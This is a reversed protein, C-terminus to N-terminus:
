RGQSVAACESVLQRQLRKLDEPVPTGRERLAEIERQVRAYAQRPDETDLDALSSRVRQLNDAMMEEEQERRRAIASRRV